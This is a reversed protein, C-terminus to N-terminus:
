SEVDHEEERALVSQQNWVKYTKEESLFINTPPTTIWELEREEDWHRVLKQLSPFSDNRWKHGQPHYFKQSMRKRGKNNKLQALEPDGESKRHLTNVITGLHQMFSVRLERRSSWGAKRLNGTVLARRADVVFDKNCASDRAIATLICWRVGKLHGTQVFARLLTRMCAGDFKIQRGWRSKYAAILLDLAADAQGQDILRTSINNMFHHKLGLNPMDWCMNYFHFVALKLMEIDSLADVEMIQSFFVPIVPLDAEMDKWHDEIIQRAPAIGKEVLMAIVALEVHFSKFVFGAAKANEFCWLVSDFDGAHLFHAMQKDLASYQNIPRDTMIGSLARRYWNPWVGKNPILNAERWPLSRQDYGMIRQSSASQGYKIRAAHLMQWFGVHSGEISRREVQLMEIFEDEKLSVEWQLTQALNELETVLEADGKQIYARLVHEYLVQDPRLSYKEVAKNFFERIAAANHIPWFELFVSTFIRTFNRDSTLGLTHMEELGEKVENWNCALAQGLLLLGKTRCSGTVGYVTEMDNALAEADAIRGFQIYAKIMPNFLKATPEIDFRGIISLMKEFERNMLDINRSKKWISHLFVGCLSCEKDHAVNRYMVISAEQFRRTELLCRVVLEVLYFPIDIADRYRLIVQAASELAGSKTLAIVLFKWMRPSISDLAEIREFLSKAVWINDDSCNAYFINVALERTRASLRKLTQPHTELFLEAAEIIQRKEFLDRIARIAQCYEESQIDIGQESSLNPLEVPARDYMSSGITELDYVSFNIAESRDMLWSKTMTARELDQAASQLDKETFTPPIDSYFGSSGSGEVVRNETSAQEVMTSSPHEHEHNHSSRNWGGQKLSALGDFEGAEAAEVMLALKRAASTANYYPASTQITRKNQVIKEAISARRHADYTIAAVTCVGGITSGALALQRLVRLANRSPVLATGTHQPLM